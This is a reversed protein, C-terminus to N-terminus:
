ATPFGLRRAEMQELIGGTRASVPSSTRVADRIGQCRACCVQPLVVRGSPAPMATQRGQSAPPENLTRPTRLVLFEVRRVQLCLMEAHASADRRSEVHNRGTSLM